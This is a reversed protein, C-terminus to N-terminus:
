EIVNMSIRARVVDVLNIALLLNHCARLVNQWTHVESGRKRWSDMEHQSFSCCYNSYHPDSILLDEAHWSFRGCCVELHSGNREIETEAHM